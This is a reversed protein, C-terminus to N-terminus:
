CGASRVECGQRFPDTQRRRPEPEDSEEKVNQNPTSARPHENQAIGKQEGSRAPFIEPPNPILNLLSVKESVHQNEAEGNVPREGMGQGIPCNPFRHDPEFDHESIASRAPQPPCQPSFNGEEERSEGAEHTEKPCNNVWVLLAPVIQYCSSEDHLFALLLSM